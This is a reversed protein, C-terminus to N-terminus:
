IITPNSLTNSQVLAERRMTIVEEYLELTELHLDYRNELRTLMQEFYHSSVIEALEKPVIKSAPLSERQANESWRRFTIHRELGLQPIKSNIEALTDLDCIELLRRALLEQEAKSKLVEGFAPFRQDHHSLSFYLTMLNLTVDM